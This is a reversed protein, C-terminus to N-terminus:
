GRGESLLAFISSFQFQGEFFNQLFQLERLLSIKILFKRCISTSFVESGLFKEILM